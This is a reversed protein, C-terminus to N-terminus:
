VEGRLVERIRGIEEDFSRAADFGCLWPNDAFLYNTQYDDLDFFKQLADFGWQRPTIDYYINGQRHGAEEPQQGVLGMERFGKDRAAWGGFCASHGALWVRPNLNGKMDRVTKLVRILRELRDMDPM